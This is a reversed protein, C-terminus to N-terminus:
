SRLYKELEELSSFEFLINNDEYILKAANKVVRGSEDDYIVIAPYGLEGDIMGPHKKNLLNLAKKIEM